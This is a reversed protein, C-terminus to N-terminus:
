SITRKQNAKFTKLTRFLFFAAVFTALVDSAPHTYWIGDIGFHKPLIALLPIIFLLQRTLSLFISTKVQGICQFFNTTVMQFGIIPFVLFVIRIAKVSSEILHPDSTFARACQYPILLSLLFGFSVICTAAFIAKLLVQRLRDYNHAGYNYGAIPQMGQNLGMIIMVFLFALRNTIGYAAIELDGGYHALSWNFFVTVFCACLNMLFPSIGIAFTGYVIRRNLKFTDREFHIFENKDSFLKLQWLLVVTQSLVTAGAAGQIGWHFTYIFLPALIINIAVTAITAYMAEKPHGSARLLSNMGLYLHTIVNGLLIVEMFAKAYSITDPSAGFFYLINDLFFLMVAGILIGMVINLVFVNGLIKRAVEYDKEGLKVSLLTAAGVGVMAGFAATLQMVPFSLAVGAIALPGVGKGIFIADIINYLSSATMAIIAPAAYKLLLSGIPKTGLETINNSIPM